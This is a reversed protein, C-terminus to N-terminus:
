PRAAPRALEQEMMGATLPCYSRASISYSWTQGSQEYVCTRNEGTISESQLGATPPAPDSARPPPFTGPCNEGLGVLHHRLRTPDNTAGTDSAYLCNRQRGEVTESILQASATTFFPLSGAAIAAFLLAKM